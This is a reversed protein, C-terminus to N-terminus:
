IEEEEEEPNVTHLYEIYEKTYRVTVGCHRAGEEIKKSLSEVEDTACNWLDSQDHDELWFSADWVGWGGSTDFHVAEEIDSHIKHLWGDSAEILEPHELYDWDWLGPGEDEDDEPDYDLDDEPADEPKDEPFTMYPNEREVLGAATLAMIKNIAKAPLAPNVLKFRHNNRNSSIKLYPNYADESDWISTSLHYSYSTKNQFPFRREIHIYAKKPALGNIGPLDEGNDNKPYEDEEVFLPHLAIRDDVLDMTVTILRKKREDQEPLFMVM